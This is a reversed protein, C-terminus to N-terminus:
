RRVSARNVFQIITQLVASWWIVLSIISLPVFCILLIFAEGMAAFPDHNPEANAQYLFYPLNLMILAATAYALTLFPSRKPEEAVEVVMEGPRHPAVKPSSVLM